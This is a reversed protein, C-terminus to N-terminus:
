FRTTSIADRAHKLSLHRGGFSRGAQGVHPSPRFASATNMQALLRDCVSPGQSGINVAIGAREILTALGAVTVRHAERFCFIFASKAKRKL